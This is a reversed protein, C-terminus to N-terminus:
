KGKLYAVVAARQAADPVAVMMTTGPVLKRPAAIYSDLKAADWTIGTDTLAKSYRAGPVSGAKRGIVGALSPGVKNQGAEVSHCAACRSKFLAEGGTAQAAAPLATFLSLSLLAVRVSM